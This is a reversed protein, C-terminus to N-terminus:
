TRGGALVSADPETAVARTTMISAPHVLLNKARERANFTAVASHCSGSRRDVRHQSRGDPRARREINDSYAGRISRGSSGDARGVFTAACAASRQAELSTRGLSATARAYSESRLM